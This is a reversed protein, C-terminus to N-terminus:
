AFFKKRAGAVEGSMKDAVAHLIRAELSSVLTRAQDAEPSHPAVVILSRMVFAARAVRKRDLYINALEWQHRPLLASFDRETLQAELFELDEGKLCLALAKRFKQDDWEKRWRPLQDRDRRVRASRAEQEALLTRVEEIAEDASRVTEHLRDLDARIEQELIGIRRQIRNWATQSRHESVVTSSDRLIGLHKRNGSVAGGIAAATSDATNLTQHVRAVVACYKQFWLEFGDDRVKVAAPGEVPKPRTADKHNSEVDSRRRYTQVIEGVWALRVHFLAWPGRDELAGQGDAGPPTGMRM